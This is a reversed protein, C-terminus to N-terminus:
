DIFDDQSLVGARKGICCHYFHEIAKKLWYRWVSVSLWFYVWGLVNVLTFSEGAGYVTFLGQDQKFTYLLNADVKVFLCVDPLHGKMWKLKIQVNVRKFLKLKSVLATVWVTCSRHPVHLRQQRRDFCDCQSRQWLSQMVYAVSLDCLVM